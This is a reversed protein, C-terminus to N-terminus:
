QPLDLKTWSTTAEDWTYINGDTPMPTPAVWLCTETDLTWSPYPKPPIFADLESNYTYGIGAYNKRFQPQGDPQNDDGYHVGGRTNYSTKVWTGGLLNRCFEAGAAETPEDSNSVVIVRQVVNDLGLEAYHAM